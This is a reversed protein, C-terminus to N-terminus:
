KLRGATAVLQLGIAYAHSGVPECYVVRARARFDGRLSRLNLREKPKCPQSALVRVGHGSVNETIGEHARRRMDLSCLDVRIALPIREESRHALTQMHCGQLHM